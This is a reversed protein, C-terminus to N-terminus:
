FSLKLALQISRPGGVQYVPNLGGNVGATGLGRNLMSSTTGFLPDTLSGRPDAFNPHNFLNFCEVSFRLKIKESLDFQRRLAFDINWFSFGRLANRGLAGQRGELPRIFPGIQPFPNGPNVVQTNNIRRSGPVAPDNLYFPVGPALDPRFSFPGFGFDATYTINVPTPTRATFISGASWGRLVVGGRKLAPLNYTLAGALLHRVDFDSPGRDIEPSLKASPTSFSSDNSAIDISHSWTYSVLAQLGNSLRRQFQLQLSHYDSTANNKTISIDQFDPNLFLLRERRLLRRGLAGVYTVSLTQDAGIAQEVAASLQYVRPLTINPDLVGVSGFPPELSFPPPAVLAPNLPYPIGNSSSAFRTRYYPFLASADAVTGSGLDYFIGAGGRLVTQWHRSQSLEYAAGVRPAFNRYSTRWLPTGRPAPALATLDELGTITLLSQGDKGKPPPNLEWRVGYTLTMRPRVRWSDQGYASLNMFSLAVRDRASLQVSSARGSLLSGIRPDLDGIGAVGLFGVVQEYARPGNIPLLQRYDGGFKLQHTSRIVSLHDVVNIQRQVNDVSKGVSLSPAGFVLLTVLSDAPSAFPPFLVSNAPPTAGGFTDLRNEGQGVAKTYNGRLDNSAHESLRQVVGVTLTRYDFAITSTQSLGGTRQTLDSHAESYRTFWVQSAGVTHDFRLSAADLTTPDSYRASFLSQGFGIEQGNPVPYANLIPRIPPPAQQRAGNSPVAVTGVLPQLLRLGEYSAFFFTRNHGDYIPSGRGSFPPVVVPGGFVGGFDNQRLAPKKLGDRNAFWDNADLADNRFYDFLAGHFENAGSRTVLSVQGGPTRGFEPAYSSTLIRFEQLAEVAVLSNTGGTASLGPLAGAGSQGLSVSASVGTNASVGDVTFYNANARQGNVSFQGQENVTAKTLVVGPSLAILTMFGRGNLPLNEVFQRDITTGVAASEEVGIRDKITVMDGVEGVRLQIRIARQDNVNLVVNEVEVPSFGARRARIIYGDPPLMVFTFNGDEGTTAHRELAKSNNLLTIGVGSVSAGREDVILGSLSATVSQAHTVLVVISIAFFIFFIISLTRM